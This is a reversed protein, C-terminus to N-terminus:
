WCVPSLSSVLFTSYKAHLKTHHQFTVSQFTSLFCRYPKSIHHQVLIFFIMQVLRSFFSSTDCLTLSSLSIKCVIFLRFALQIPWMKRLFQRKFYMNFSIYHFFQLSPFVLFFFYASNHPYQFNFYSASAPQRHLVGKPIPQPGATFCVVQFIFISPRFIDSLSFAPLFLIQRLLYHLDGIKRNIKRKRNRLHKNTTCPDTM